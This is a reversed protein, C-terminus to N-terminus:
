GSCLRKEVVEIDRKGRALRQTARFLDANLSERQALPSDSDFGADDARPPLRACVGAARPSARRRM